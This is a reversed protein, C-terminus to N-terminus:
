KANHKREIALLRVLDTYPLCALARTSDGRTVLVPIGGDIPCLQVEAIASLSAYRRGRKCQFIYPGTHDIDRGTAEEKQYELHRKAEPFVKRLTDAVWREFAHGKARGGGPKMKKGPKGKPRGMVKGM